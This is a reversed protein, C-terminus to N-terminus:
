SGTLVEEEEGFSGGEAVEVVVFVLLLLGLWTVNERRPQLFGALCVSPKFDFSFQRGSFIIKSQVRIYM